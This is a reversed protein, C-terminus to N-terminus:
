YLIATGPLIVSLSPIRLVRRKSSSNSFVNTGRPKSKAWRTESSLVVVLVTIARKHKQIDLVQIQERGVKPLCSTAQWNRSPRQYIWTSKISLKRVVVVLSEAFSEPIQPFIIAEFGM